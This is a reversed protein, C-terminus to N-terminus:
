FFEHKTKDKQSTTIEEIDINNKNQQIKNM